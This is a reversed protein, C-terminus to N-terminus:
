CLSTNLLCDPPETLWLNIAMSRCSCVNRAPFLHLIDASALSQSSAWKASHPAPRAISMPEAVGKKHPGKKRLGKKKAPLKLM